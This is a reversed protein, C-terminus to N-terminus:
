NFSSRRCFQEECPVGDHNGDMETAPCHNIFWTAEKCSTMQSCHTRGDCHFSGPM